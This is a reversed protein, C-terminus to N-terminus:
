RRSGRERHFVILDTPEPSAAGLQRLMTTVQGRHYAAHNVLHQVLHDSRNAALQGNLLKYEIARELSVDDLGSVFDRLDAETGAWAARVDAMTVFREPGPRTAPSRGHFRELWIWEASQLHSLTDRVSSFSGGLDRIFEEASLRDVAALTRDLAWYHFDVLTQLDHRTM